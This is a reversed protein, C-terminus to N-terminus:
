RICEIKCYKKPLKKWTQDSTVATANRLMALALCARDGLSLGLPKTIVRIEFCKDAMDKDFNVINFGIESLLDLIDDQKVGFDVLKSAVEAYNVASILSSSIIKSVFEYGSEKHLLALVASADLVYKNM